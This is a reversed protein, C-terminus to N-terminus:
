QQMDAPDFGLEDLDRLNESDPKMYMFVAIAMIVLIVMVITKKNGRKKAM